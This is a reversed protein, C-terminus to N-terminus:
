RRHALESGPHSVFDIIWQGDDLGRHANHSSLAVLIVEAVPVQM